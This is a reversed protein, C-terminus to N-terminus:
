KRLREIAQALAVYLKGMDASLLTVAMANGDRTSLVSRLMAEFDHIYRNVTERFDADGEYIEAVARAEHTGLLRVARRTFIGRDGRLYSAWATDTVENAFAKSIDIASSNLSETILAMRKVFDNDVQEEARERAHAVRQELNGTLENVRSLQDRLQAASARGAEGAQRAAGELEAIAEAAHARIADVVAQSSDGGIREALARVAEAQNDQLQGLANAAAQELTAVAAGLEGRAREALETSRTALEAMHTELIALEEITAAGDRRAGAVQQALVAGRDGAEAIVGALRRAHDEFATLRAEAQGISRPLGESCHEASSRILELLRVSDDTLGAVLTASEAVVERNAGLRAALDAAAEGLDGHARLGRDALEGMRADMEGLQVALANWREAMTAAHALQAEQRDTLVGDFSGLTDELGALMAAERQSIDAERKALEEDFAAVRTAIAEDIRVAEDRLAFLRKRANDTAAADIEAIRRIAEVLREELGAVNASWRESAEDERARWQEAVRAADATTQTMRSELRETQATLAALTQDVNGRLATVQRGSAEGFENLRVFGNTLEAVNQRAVEGAHGIQSAVDRASTGIMPLVERLRDMNTLATSGVRDIVDLQASNDNILGHLRDAHQSLREVAGRGLAELEASQAAFHERAHALERNVVAMRQELARSETTMGHAVRAFRASERRSHRMALLWVAVVLLVPVAWDVVLGVAERPALGDAFSTQYAWAFFVSWGIVALVALTPAIWSSDRRPAPGVEDAYDDGSLEWQDDFVPQQRVTAPAEPEVGVPETAPAEGGADGIAVLRRNGAM